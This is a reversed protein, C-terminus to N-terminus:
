PLAQPPTRPHRCARSRHRCARVPAREVASSPRSASCSCATPTAFRYRHAAVSLLLVASAHGSWAGQVQQRAAGPARGPSRPAPPTCCMLSRRLATLAASRVRRRLWHPWLGAACPGDAQPQASPEHHVQADPHHRCRAVDACPRCARQSRAACVACPWRRRAPTPACPTRAPHGRPRAASARRRPPSAM